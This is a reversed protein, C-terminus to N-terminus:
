LADLEEEEIPIEPTVGANRRLIWLVVGLPVMGLLGIAQSTTLGMVGTDLDAGAQAMGPFTQMMWESAEWTVLYGRHDARFAEQFTRVWPELILTLCAIEWEMLTTARARWNKGPAEPAGADVTM